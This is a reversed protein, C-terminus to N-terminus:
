FFDYKSRSINRLGQEHELRRFRQLTLPLRLWFGLSRTGHVVQIKWIKKFWQFRDYKIFLFWFVFLSFDLHLSRLYSAQKFLSLYIM